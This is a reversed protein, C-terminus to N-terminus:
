RKRMSPPITPRVRNVISLSGGAFYPRQRGSRIRNNLDAPSDARMELVQFLKSYASRLQVESTQLVAAQVLSQQEIELEEWVALWRRSNWRGDCKEVTLFGLEALAQVAFQQRQPDYKRFRPNLEWVKRSRDLM